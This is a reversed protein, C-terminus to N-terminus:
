EFNLYENYAMNTANQIWPDELIEQTTARKAPDFKLMRSLLRKVDNSMDCWPEETLHQKWIDRRRGFTIAELEVELAEELSLKSVDVGEKHPFPPYGALLTYLVVGASWVDCAPGYERKELVEPAVYGLTGAPNQFVDQENMHKAYGFDTIKFANFTSDNDHRDELLINELKIDRHIIGHRHLAELAYILKRIVVAADQETMRGNEAVHDYFDGGRILELVFCLETDTEFVDRIPTLRSHGVEDEIQQLIRLEQQCLQKPSTSKDMIKIAVSEGTEQDVAEHVSAFHGSGIEKGIKYRNIKEPKRYQFPMFYVPRKRPPPNHRPVSDELAEDLASVAATASSLHQRKIGFVQHLTASARVNGGIIRQQQVLLRPSQRGLIRLSNLM